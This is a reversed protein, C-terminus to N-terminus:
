MYEFMILIKTMSLYIFLYICFKASLCKYSLKPASLSNNYNTMADDGDGGGSGDDDNNHLERKDTLHRRIISFM